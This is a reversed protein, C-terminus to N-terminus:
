SIWDKRSDSHRTKFDGDNSIELFVRGFEGAHGLIVPIVKIRGFGHLGNDIGQVFASM